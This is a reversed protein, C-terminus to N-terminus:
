TPPSGSNDTWCFDSDEKPGKRNNSNFRLALREDIMKALYDDFSETSTEKHNADSRRSIHALLESTSHLEKQLAQMAGSGLSEKSTILRQRFDELVGAVQTATSNINSMSTMAMEKYQDDLSSRRPRSQLGSKSGPGFSFNKLRNRQSGIEVSRTRDTSSPDSGESAATVAFRSIKRRLRSPSLNTSPVLDGGSQNGLFRQHEAIETKSLIRRLPRQMSSLQLQTFDPDSTGNGGNHRINKQAIKWIVITGDHGTSIIKTVVQGNPMSAKVFALDSIATQGYDLALLLGTELDYLRISRDASSYGVFVISGAPQEDLNVASLRSMAAPEGNLPDSAKFTNTICGQTISIKRIYRDVASVLLTPAADPLPCMDLPTAKFNIVKTSIFAISGDTRLVKSHLVVTRDLSMSALLCGKEAFELRRIPGAHENLKSQLLSCKQDILLFIQISRDRGCSAALPKEGDLEHLALDLIEGDHAKVVNNTEGKTSLLHLSGAKDGALLMEYGSFLRVVRLENLDGTDSHLPQDLDISFRCTCTGNWQWRLVQGSESYTLFGSQGDDPKTLSIVGLIASDHCPLMQITTLHTTDRSDLTVDYIRMSRSSDITILRRDVWCIACVTIVDEVTPKARVCPGKFEEPAAMADEAALLVDLPLSEPQVGEGGIWVVGSSRDLTICTVRYHKKSIQYLRQSRNTDDLICVAGDQTALVAREEAIGVVCTFTADKLPGLLCNRGAFTRPAPSSTHSDIISEVGRRAKSPSSPRELRWIKVNRTGVSVVSTGMWAITEATTCRNSSDLRLAGTKPHISWLFLGGDHLDGLSCLWRSDHSFALARVGFTHETLCALPM